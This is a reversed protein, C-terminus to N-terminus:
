TKVPNSLLCDLGISGFCNQEVGRLIGGAGRIAGGGGLVSLSANVGDGVSFGSFTTKIFVQM